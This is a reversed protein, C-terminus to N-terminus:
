SGSYKKWNHMYEKRTGKGKFTNYYKKWYKAMEPIDNYEPMPASVRLYHVRAMAAAYKDNFELENIKDATPSTMLATVKKALDPKYKLFNAWIDNHTNPEMQFYSRAPGNGFQIRYKIRSEQIATGLLLQEAAKSYLGIAELAPKIVTTVFTQPDMSSSGSIKTSISVAPTPSKIFPMVKFSKGKLTDDVELELKPGHNKYEYLVKGDDSKVQWSVNQLEEPTPNPLNTKSVKYVLSDGVDAKSAGDVSKILLKRTVPIVTPTEVPIKQENPSKQTDDQEAALTDEEDEEEDEDNRGFQILAKLMTLDDGAVEINFVLQEEGPKLEKPEEPSIDPAKNAGPQQLPMPPTNKNNSIMMDNQRVVPIGEIFINPSATIFEAMGKVTGSIVGGCVQNM